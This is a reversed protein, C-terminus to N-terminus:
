FQHLHSNLLFDIINGFEKRNVEEKAGKKMRHGRSAPTVQIVKQQPLLRTSPNLPQQLWEEQKRHVSSFSIYAWMLLTDEKEVFTRTTELTKNDLAM